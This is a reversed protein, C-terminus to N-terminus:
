RDLRWKCVGLGPGYEVAGVITYALDDLQHQIRDRLVQSHYEYLVAHPPSRKPNNFLYHSLVDLEAGECDFKALDCDPLMAPHLKDPCHTGGPDTDRVPRMTAAGINGVPVSMTLLEDSSTVAVEHLDAFPVNKRLMGFALPNPEYCHIAADPWRQHAWIAFAGVCAGIDLIRRIPKATRLDYEGGTWISEWHPMMEAPTVFEAESM